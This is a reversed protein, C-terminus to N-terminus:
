VYVGCDFNLLYIPLSRFPILSFPIYYVRDTLTLPSNHPFIFIPHQHPRTCAKSQVYVRAGGAVEPGLGAPLRASYGRSRPARASFFVRTRAAASECNRTKAELTVSSYALLHLPFRFCVLISHHQKQFAHTTESTDLNRLKVTTSRSVDLRSTM